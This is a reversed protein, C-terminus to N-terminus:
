DDSKVKKPRGAKKKVEVAKENLDVNNHQENGGLNIEDAAPIAAAMENLATTTGRTKM